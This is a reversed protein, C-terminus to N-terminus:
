EYPQVYVHQNKRLKFIMKYSLNKLAGWPHRWYRNKPLAWGEVFEHNVYEFGLICVLRCFTSPDWAQVHHQTKEYSTKMSRSISKFRRQQNSLVMSLIYRPTMINPLSIILFGGPKLVRNCEKLYMGPNLTHEVVESSVVVDYIEDSIECIDTTSYSLGDREGIFDRAIRISNAEPDIADVRCAREESIMESLIGWGCGYDLVYSHKPIHKLTAMHRDFSRRISRRYWEIFTKAEQHSTPEGRIYYMQDNIM